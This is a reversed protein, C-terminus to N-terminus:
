QNSKDKTKDRVIFDNDTNTKVLPFMFSLCQRHCDKHVTLFVCTHMYGFTHWGIQTSSVEVVDGMFLANSVFISFAPNM